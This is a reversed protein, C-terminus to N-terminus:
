GEEKMRNERSHEWAVQILRRIHDDELSYFVMKGAKRYDALGLKKLVRLHHSAAATSIGTIQAADCVCLEEELSLAFAIHMRTKDALAKFMGAMFDIEGRNISNQLTSVKKEDYTFVRCNDDSFVFFGGKM